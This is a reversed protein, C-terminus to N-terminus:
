SGGKRRTDEAPSGSAAGQLILSVIVDDKSCCCGLGRRPLGLFVDICYGTNICSSLVLLLKVNKVGVVHFTGAM